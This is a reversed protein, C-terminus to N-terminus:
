IHRSETSWCSHKSYSLFSIHKPKENKSNKISNKHGNSDQDFGLILKVLIQVLKFCSFSFYTHIRRIWELIFSKPPNKLKGHGFGLIVDRRAKSWLVFNLTLPLYICSKEPKFIDQGQKDVQISVIHCLFAIHKQKENKSKKQIKIGM